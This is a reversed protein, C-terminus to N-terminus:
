KKKSKKLKAVFIFFIKFKKRSILSNKEKLYDYAETKNNFKM